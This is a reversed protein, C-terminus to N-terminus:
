ENATSRIKADRGILASQALASATVGLSPHVWAPAIEALPGMVFYREAARPHPVIPDAERIVRGYAILDLDLTRASNPVGVHRGFRRELSHMANLMDTPNWATEVLAVANTYAPESPDPWAVSGWWSSRELVKIGVESLGTIAAELLAECTPYPGNLSSGLAVVISLNHNM